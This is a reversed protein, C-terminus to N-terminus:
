RGGQGRERQRSKRTAPVWYDPKCFSRRSEEGLFHAMQVQDSVGRGQESGGGLTVPGRLLGALAKFEVQLLGDQRQRGAKSRTEETTRPPTDQPRETDFGQLIESSGGERSAGNTVRGGWGWGQARQGRELGRTGPQRKQLPRRVQGGAEGQLILDECNLPLSMPVRAAGFTAVSRPLFNAEPKPTQSPVLSQSPCPRLLMTPAAPLHSAADLPRLPSPTPSVSCTAMGLTRQHLLLSGVCSAPLLKKHLVLSTYM